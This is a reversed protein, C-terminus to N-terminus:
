INKKFRALALLPLILMVLGPAFGGANCGGGSSDEGPIYPSERWPTYDVFETVEDGLGDPNDYSPNDMASDPDYPGSPDGWWNDPADILVGTINEVGYFFNDQFNNNKLVFTSEELYNGEDVLMGNDNEIFTNGQVYIEGTTSYFFEYLVLGYDNCDTIYNDEVYVKFGDADSDYGVYDLYIGYSCEYITNDRTYISGGFNEFLEYMYIGYECEGIENEDVYLLLPDKGYEGSLYIYIGFDYDGTITNDKIWTTKEANNMYIGYSGDTGSFDINNNEIKFSIEEGDPHIEDVYIGSTSCDTLSNDSIEVSGGFLYMFYIGTSPGDIINDLIKIDVNQLIGMDGELYIGTGSSFIINDEIMISCGEIAADFPFYIGDGTIDYFWNSIFTVDETQNGSVVIGYQSNEITFDEVRLGNGTLEIGQTVGDIIAGASVLSRLTLRDKNISIDGDYTGAEVLITDGDSARDVAEQITALPLSQTGPDSDNGDTAVYWTAAFGAGTSLLLITLSFVVTLWLYRKM